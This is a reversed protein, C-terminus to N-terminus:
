SLVSIPHGSVLGHLESLSLTAAKDTQHRVVQWGLRRGLSEVDLKHQEFRAQYRSQATEARGVILSKVSDLGPMKLQVRGKYPFAREAPDIIHVLIGQTPHSALKALSERWHDIPGLFDSAIIVKSHPKVDAKFDSLHGSNRMYDEFLRDLGTRGTRSRSDQGMILCREGGQMLLHSLALLIIAARESKLPLNPSSAWDMGVSRDQWFYITNAAEWENDRVFLSDGRASRRWDIRSAADSSDYPRYQWFTEGQGAKRRGHLGTAMISSVRKAEALLSPYSAALTRAKLRIASNQNDLTKPVQKFNLPVDVM